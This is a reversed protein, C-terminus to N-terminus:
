LSGGTVVRHSLPVCHRGSNTAHDVSRDEGSRDRRSKRRKVRMVYRARSEIGM